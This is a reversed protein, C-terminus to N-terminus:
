PPTPTKEPKKNSILLLTGMSRKPPKLREVQYLSLNKRSPLGQFDEECILGYVKGENSMTSLFEEQSFTLKPHSRTYYIHAPRFMNYIVWPTGPEILGAIKLCLSKESRKENDRSFVLRGYSAEFSITLMFVIVFLVMLQRTRFAYWLSAALCITTAAMVAIELPSPHFRHAHAEVFVYAVMLGVFVALGYALPPLTRPWEKLPPEKMLRDWFYGLLVAVAPYTPLIYRSFKQLAISFIFLMALIWLGAFAVGQREREDTMDKVYLYLIAPLALSWPLTGSFINSFYFFFKDIGLPTKAHHSFQGLLGDIYSRGDTLYAPMLWVLIVAALLLGGSLPRTKKLFGLDRRWLLFAIVVGGVMVFAVPGKTTIAALGMLAWAMLMYMKRGDPSVYGSYFAALSATVLFAFPVDLRAMCSFKHFQAMTAMILAALMGARHNFLMRGLFYVLLVTGLGMLMSPLIATAETVDGRPLSFVAELWFYLPPEGYYPNGNLRLASWHGDVLVERGIQAYQPEDTGTFERLWLNPLFVVMWLCVLIFVASRANGQLLDRM